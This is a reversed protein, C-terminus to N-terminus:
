RGVMDGRELLHDVSAQWKEDRVIEGVDASAAPSYGSAM